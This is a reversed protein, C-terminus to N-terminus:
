ELLLPVDAGESDRFRNRGEYFNKVRKDVDSCLTYAVFEIPKFSCQSSFYEQKSSFLSSVFGKMLIEIFLSCRNNCTLM